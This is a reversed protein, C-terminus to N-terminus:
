EGTCLWKELLESRMLKGRANRPLSEVQVARKPVAERPLNRQCYALLEQESFNSRPVFFCVPAHGYIDDPVGIVAADLVDPHALLIDEIERPSIKIGGRIILDDMRGTIRIRGSGDMVGLDNTALRGGRIPALRNDAQLLGLALEPGEVMIQGVVDAPCKRGTEDIIEVSAGSVPYGVTGIQIDNCRNSCIWGAESSGYINLLRIRFTQEFRIWQATSLPATSCTIFRLSVLDALSVDEPRQLLLNIVAPVGVSVSIQYRAVWEAFASRSFRPSVHLTLGTQLFPMLSLIQASYWDFSRYELTRDDSTLALAEVMAQGNLWYAAHDYVVLKPEGTTGSTTCIAAIDGAGAAEPLDPVDGGLEIFCIEADAPDDLPGEWVGCRLIRAHMSAPVRGTDAHAGCVVRRPNLTGCLQAAAAPRLRSLDVPCVVVALRWLALWLLLKELGDEMFVVVRDGATVGERRLQHAVSDVLGALEGFTVRRDQHVDVLALKDPSEAKWNALLEALPRYGHEALGRGQRDTGKVDLAEAGVGADHQGLRQLAWQRFLEVKRLRAKGLPSTIYYGSDSRVRAKFPAVLQGGALYRDVLPTRGIAVGGGAVAAELSTLQLHFVSVGNFPVGSYGAASLWAPWDDQYMSYFFTRIQRLGSLLQRENLPAQGDLLIGPACVPFFEEDHLLDSQSAPWRGSGYRIAVDYNARSFEVFESSTALHVTIDPHLNQFEPLAPILCQTAYTPLCVITLITHTKNKRTIETATAVLNIAESISQLYERAASTLTLMNRQRVFLKIGLQTELNKIQHSIATQTLKLEQAAKTFSLHRAAAEFALLTQLSPLHPRM